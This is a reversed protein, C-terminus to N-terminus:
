RSFRLGCGEICFVPGTPSMELFGNNFRYAYNQTTNDQKTFVVTTSDKITYRSYGPFASGELAGNPDFQVNAAVSVKTWTGPGGNGVYTETLTWKGLLSQNNYSSDKKCSCVIMVIAAFLITTLSKM